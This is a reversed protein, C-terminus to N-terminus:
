FIFKKMFPIAFFAFFSLLTRTFEEGSKNLQKLKEILTNIALATSKANALLHAKNAKQVDGIGLVPIVCALMLVGASAIAFIIAASEATEFGNKVKVEMIPTEIEAGDM